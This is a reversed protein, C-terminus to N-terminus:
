SCSYAQSVNNCVTPSFCSNIDTVIAKLLDSIWSPIGLSSPLATVVDSVLGVGWALMDVSWALPVGVWGGMTNLVPAVTSLDIPLSFGAATIIPQLEGLLCGVMYFGSQIIAFPIKANTSPLVPGAAGVVGPVVVMIVLALVIGISILKKV